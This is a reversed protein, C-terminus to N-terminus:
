EMGDWMTLSTFNSTKYKYQKSTVKKTGLFLSEKKNSAMLDKGAGNRWSCRRCCGSIWGAATGGWAGSTGGKKNQETERLFAFLFIYIISIVLSIAFKSACKLMITGWWISWGWGVFCFLVCFFQAVAVIINIIFSGIRARASDFQSFRPIGVCLCFLGSLLTGLSMWNLTLHVIIAMIVMSFWGLGPFIVNCFACFWALYLPLVPIAGKM